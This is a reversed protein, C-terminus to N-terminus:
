AKTNDLDFADKSFISGITLLAYTMSKRRRVGHKDLREIKKGADVYQQRGSEILAASFAHLRDSALTDCSMGFNVIETVLTKAASILRNENYNM